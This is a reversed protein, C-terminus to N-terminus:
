YRSVRTIESLIYLAM